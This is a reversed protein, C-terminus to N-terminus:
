KLLRSLRRDALPTGGTQCTPCYQWDSDASSVTRITDGCVPCKEGGHGHIRLGTRKGDKLQAPPLQVAAAIADDLVSRLAAYLQERQDPTLSDAAAAPSLRAAHLIEDSYANGVGALASQDRLLTKLHRKGAGDLVGDFSTADFDPATPDPGLRAIGPVDAPDHVLYIALRKQTGAETLDFGGVIEGGEDVFTFRAALPGRGLKVPKLSPADLWRLWGARSLHTALVLPQGDPDALEIVLFKGARTVGTVTCGPLSLVSPDATKIASIAGVQVDAVRTDVIRPRLHAILGEIEPIEPM